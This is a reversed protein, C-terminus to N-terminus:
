LKDQQRIKQQRTNQEKRIQEQAKDYTQQNIIAKHTSWYWKGKYCLMGLYTKNLLINKATQPSLDHERAIQSYSMGNTKDTFMQKITKAEQENITFKETTINGLKDKELYYGYPPRNLYKGKTTLQKQNAEVREGIQESELQALASMMTYFMRGIATSTDINQTVSVFDIRKKDLYDSTNLADKTNRFIRDLRWVIIINPKIKELEKMMKQYEPRNTTTASRGEEKYLELIKINHIECYKKIQEEQTELSIGKLQEESSVRVYAIAKKNNEENNLTQKM